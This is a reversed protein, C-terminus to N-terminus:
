SEEGPLFELVDFREPVRARLRAVFRKVANYRHAFGHGEVLDQYISVANRGLQVQSEIRARHPECASISAPRPAVESLVAEAPPRPPPVQGDPGPAGTAVGPSNAERDLRRITKRDVGTLRESERQSAGGRRLTAITIRLHAKLVNV